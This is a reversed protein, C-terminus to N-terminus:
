EALLTKRYFAYLAECAKGFSMKNADKYYVEFLHLYARAFFNVGSEKVETGLVDFVFSRSFPCGQGTENIGNVGKEKTSIKLEDLKRNFGTTFRLGTKRGDPFPEIPSDFKYGENAFPAIYGFPVNAALENLLNYRVVSNLLAVPNEYGKVKDLTMLALAQSTTLAAEQLIKVATHQFTAHALFNGYTADIENAHDELSEAIKYMAQTTSSFAEALQPGYAGIPLNIRLSIEPHYSSLGQRVRTFPLPSSPEQPYNSQTPKTLPILSLIEKNSMGYIAENASILLPHFAVGLVSIQRKLRESPPGSRLYDSYHPWKAPDYRQFIAREPVSM